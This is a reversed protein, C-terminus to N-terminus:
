ASARAVQPPPNSIELYADMLRWPVPDSVSVEFVRKRASGCRLWRIRQKYKGVAGVSRWLEPGWTKGGDNSVRLVMQPDSGQGSNAGLGPEVDVEFSAYYLRQNEFQLAPARRVRRIPQGDVDTGLASNMRYIGPSNLDLMRHEGFAYAHHLPRWVGFTGLTQNFTAREHWQQTDADWCWTAGATPFTVIYFTHGLDDYIDGIGDAISLYSNLALQVPYTSIAEATFGAARLVSGQGSTNRGVWNLAGSVVKPSFPAACGHPLLGSPHPTFPFPYLGADYWIESTEAGLLYIYRSSVAMSIWPDPAIGRQASQTSDWVTGDNLNSLFMTATSVDLAIFYGDLHAGMTTQGTRVQSFANSGTNFIYGNNGSTIFLQAGAAGNSSITAPNSNVAVTGLSTLTGDAGIEYFTTGIVAFERNTNTDYFHASGPGSAATSILQVGPTPYLANRSTGGPVEMPEMYWNVTREQNALPSQATYSGGIFAPYKV